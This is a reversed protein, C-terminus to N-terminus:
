RLEEELRSQLRRRWDAASGAGRLPLVLPLDEAPAAPLVRPGCGACAFALCFRSSSPAAPFWPSDAM